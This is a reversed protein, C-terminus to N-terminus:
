TTHEKETSSSTPLPIMAEVQYGGDSTPGASFTGGTAQVAARMSRLGLGGSDGVANRKQLPGGNRVTLTVSGPPFALTLWVSTGPAHKAANTLAERSLRYLLSETEDNLPRLTGEVGYTAQMGVARMNRTLAELFENCSVRECPKDDFAANEDEHLVAIVRRLEKMVSIAGEQIDHFAETAQPPLNPLREAGSARLVLFTTHHGVTDHIEFALRTRKELTAFRTSQGTALPVQSFREPPRVNLGRQRRKLHGFFAPLVTYLVVMYTRWTPDAIFEGTLDRALIYTLASGGVVSLARPGRGHLGVAYSAAILATAEDSAFTALAGVLVCVEPRTRRWLLSAAAALSCLVSMSYSHAFGTRYSSTLVVVSVLGVLLALALDQARPALPRRCISLLYRLRQVLVAWVYAAM